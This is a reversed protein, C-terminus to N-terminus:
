LKRVSERYVITYPMIRKREVAHGLVMQHLLELAAYGSQQPNQDVTTLGPTTYKSLHLGDYGVVSYDEPVRYGLHRLANMAALAIMDSMCLFATVTDPGHTRFYQLVGEYAEEELFNTDIIRDESLKLGNAEMAERAGAMREATVMADKRGRLLVIKRHNCDILYQTLERFSKQNDVSM